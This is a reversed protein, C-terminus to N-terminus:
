RSNPTDPRSLYIEVEWIGEVYHQTYQLGTDAILDLIRENTPSITGTFTHIGHRRAYITLERLLFFGLGQGQYGDEVVVGVEARGSNKPSTAAGSLDEAPRGTSYRAVGLLREDDGEPLAAALAMSQHYDLHTFEYLIRETLQKVPEHFRLYSSQPSLRGVLAQIRDADDERVARVQVTTGDELQYTTPQYPDM